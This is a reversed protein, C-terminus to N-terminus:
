EYYQPAHAYKVWTDWDHGPVITVGGKEMARFRALNKRYDDANADPDHSTPPTNTDMNEKIYCADATLMFTGSKETRVLLSQHGVTHGPTPILILRGDGCVDYHENGEVVYWDIGEPIPMNKNPIEYEAQRIVVTANPFEGLAGAHDPHLHSILILDIQEPELGLSRVTNPAWESEPMKMSLDVMPYEVGEIVERGNGTDFLINKGRHCILYFPMPAKRIENGGNELFFDKQGVLIGSNCFYLKLVTGGLVSRM